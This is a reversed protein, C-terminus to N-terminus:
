YIEMSMLSRRSCWKTKIVKMWTQRKVKTWTGNRSHADFEAKVAKLWQEKEDCAMAEKYNSPADRAALAVEYGEDDRLRKWPRDSASGSDVSGEYVVLSDNSPNHPRDDLMMRVPPTEPAQIRPVDVVSPLDRMVPAARYQDSVRINAGPRFVMTETLPGSPLDRPVMESPANAVVVERENTVEGDVEMPEDMVVDDGDTPEQVTDGGSPINEPATEDDNDTYMPYFVTEVSGGQEYIGGVEREDLVVSRSIVVKGTEENLVKYGKSNEAYGLFRCKFSKPDLKTRKSADVHAYGMSGFVRLHTMDPKIRFCIEHPTTGPKSMSMMRNILYAATAIAEAWWVLPVAKYHLLARAKEVLTRNMREAIGNQQPSYPVTTQHAIGNAVCVAKFRKNVYESGNDLRLRQMKVGCLNEMERIYEVFKATVQSKSKLFYVKVHRSFDDVFTLVYRAGGASKVKMPGILDTHVLELVRNTKTTSAHPFPAVTLKGMACGGCLQESSKTLEPLGTTVAQTGKYTEINPHGSRAHWTEWKSQDDKFEVLM